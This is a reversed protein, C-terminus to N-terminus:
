TKNVTFNVPITVWTNVRGESRKSSLKYFTPVLSMRINVYKTLKLNSSGLSCWTTWYPRPDWTLGTEWDSIYLLYLEPLQSDGTSRLWSVRRNVTSFSTLYQESCCDTQQGLYYPIPKSKRSARDCLPEHSRSQESGLRHASEWKGGHALKKRERKLSKLHHHSRKAETAGLLTLPERCAEQPNWRQRSKAKRQPYTLCSWISSQPLPLPRVMLQSARQPLPSLQQQSRLPQLLLKTYCDM